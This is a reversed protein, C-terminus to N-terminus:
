SARKKEVYKVYIYVSMYVYAVRWDYAELHGGYIKRKLLQM